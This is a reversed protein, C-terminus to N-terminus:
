NKQGTTKGTGGKGKGGSAADKKALIEAEEDALEKDIKAGKSPENGHMQAPLTADKQAAKDEKSLNKRSQDDNQPEAAALRNGISREDKPDNQDHSNSKGEEYPTAQNKAKETPPTVSIVLRTCALIVLTPHRWTTSQKLLLNILLYSYQFHRTLVLQNEGHVRGM